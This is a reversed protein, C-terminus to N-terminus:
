FISCCASGEKGVKQVKNDKGSEANKKETVAKGDTGILVVQDQQLKGEQTLTAKRKMNSKAAGGGPASKKVNNGPEASIAVEQEELGLVKAETDAPVADTPRNRMTMRKKIAAGGDEKPLVVNSPPYAYIQFSISGEKLEQM